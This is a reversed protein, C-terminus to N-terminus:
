PKDGYKNVRWMGSKNSLYFYLKEEKEKGDISVKYMVSSVKDSDFKNFTLIDIGNIEGFESAIEKNKKIYSELEIYSDTTNERFKIAYLVALIILAPLIFKARM